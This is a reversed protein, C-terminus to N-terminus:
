WRPRKAEGWDQFPVGAAVLADASAPPADMVAAVSAGGTVWGAPSWTEIRAGGNSQSVLRSIGGESYVPGVLVNPINRNAPM